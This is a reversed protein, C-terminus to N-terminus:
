SVINHLWMTLRAQFSKLVSKSALRLHARIRKRSTTIVSNDALGFSRYLFTSRFLTLPPRNISRTNVRSKTKSPIKLLRTRNTTLIEKHNESKQKKELAKKPKKKPEFIPTSRCGGNPAKHKTSKKTYFHKNQTYIIYLICRIYM